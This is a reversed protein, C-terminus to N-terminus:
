YLSQQWLANLQIGSFVSRSNGRPIGRRIRHHVRDAAKRTRQRKNRRQFRALANGKGILFAYNARMFQHLLCLSFAAPLYDGHVALLAGYELAKACPFLPLYPPKYEGRGAPREPLEGFLLKVLDRRM